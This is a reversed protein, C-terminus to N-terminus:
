GHTRIALAIAAATEGTHTLSAEIRYLRAHAPSTFVIHPRRNKKTIRFDSPKLKEPVAKIVAEKLAFRSALFPVTKAGSPMDRIEAPTLFYEAFRKPFRMGKIDSIEVVDIGIGAISIGTNMIIHARSAEM